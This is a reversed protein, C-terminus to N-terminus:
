QQKKENLYMWLNDVHKVAICARMIKFMLIRSPFALSLIPKMLDVDDIEDLYQLAQQKSNNSDYSTPVKDEAPQQKKKSKKGKKKRPLPIKPPFPDIWGIEHFSNINSDKMNQVTESSELLGYEKLDADSIQSKILTEKTLLDTEKMSQLDEKM